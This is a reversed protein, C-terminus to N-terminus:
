RTDKANTKERPTRVNVIVAFLVGLFIMELALMDIMVRANERIFAKGNWDYVYLDGWYHDAALTFGEQGFFPGYGSIHQRDGHPALLM